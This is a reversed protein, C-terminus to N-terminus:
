RHKAILPYQQALYAMLLIPRAPLCIAESILDAIRLEHVELGLDRSLAM